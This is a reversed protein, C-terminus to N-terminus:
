EELQISKGFRGYLIKKLADQKELIESEQIELTQIKEQHKEVTDECYTTAEEESTEFFAGGMFLLVKGADAMMIETSADDIRELENKLSDREARVEHLKANLRAFKNINEQDERRVEAENEEEPALM